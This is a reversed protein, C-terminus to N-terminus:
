QLPLFNARRNKANAADSDGPVLPKEKGYSIVSLRSDTVGLGVLYEKVSRARREGLALNYELSGRADCHGEIQVNVSPHGKIWDANAQLKQRADERLVSKDYDFNVTQLGPIKGSDSGAPDFNMPTSDIAPAQTAAASENKKDTDAKKAPCGALLLVVASIGILNLSARVFNSKM